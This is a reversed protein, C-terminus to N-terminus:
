YYQSFVQLLADVYSNIKSQIVAIVAAIYIFLILIFFMFKFLWM